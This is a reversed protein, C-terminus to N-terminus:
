WRLSRRPGHVMLRAAGLVNQERRGTIAMSLQGYCWEELSVAGHIQFLTQAIQSM